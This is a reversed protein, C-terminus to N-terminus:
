TMGVLLTLLCTSVRWQRSQSSYPQNLDIAITLLFSPNHHHFRPALLTDPCKPSCNSPIPPTRPIQALSDTEVLHLPFLRTSAGSSLQVPKVQPLPPSPTPPTATLSNLANPYRLLKIKKRMPTKPPILLLPVETCYYLVSYPSYYDITVKQGPGRM